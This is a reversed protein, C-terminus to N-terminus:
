GAVFLTGLVAMEIGRKGKGNAGNKLKREGSQYM